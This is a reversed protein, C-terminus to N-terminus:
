TCFGCRPDLFVLLLRDGRWQSLSRLDGALDPLHFDPAVDGVELGQPIDPGPGATSALQAEIASLRGLIRGNQRLLQCTLWGGLAAGLWLLVISVILLSM